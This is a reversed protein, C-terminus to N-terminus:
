SLSETSILQRIQHSENPQLTVADQLANTTEICVFKRYKEDPLDHIGSEKWPNWITTSNSGSKEIVIERNLDKDVIICTADTPVYVRNVEQRIQLSEIEKKKKKDDTYDIFPTTEVGEIKVTEIDSIAFYTHLAQTITFSNEDMNTTKLEISLKKGINFTLELEFAYPFLAQTEKDDNLTLV